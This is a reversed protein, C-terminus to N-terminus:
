NRIDHRGKWHPRHSVSMWLSASSGICTELTREAYGFLRLPESYDYHHAQSKSSTCDPWECRLKTVDGNKVAAHHRPRAVLKYRREYKEVHKTGEITLYSHWGEGLPDHWCRSTKEHTM